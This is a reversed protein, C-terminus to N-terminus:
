NRYISKEGLTMLCSCVDEVEEEVEMEEETVHTLLAIGLCSTVM